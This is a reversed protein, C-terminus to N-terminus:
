VVNPGHRNELDRRAREKPNLYVLRHDTAQQPLQTGNLKKKKKAKASMELLKAV